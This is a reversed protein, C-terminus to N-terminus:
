KSYIFECDRLLGHYNYQFYEESETNVRIFTLGHKTDEKQSFNLFQTNASIRASYFLPAITSNKELFNVRVTVPPTTSGLILEKKTLKLVKLILSEKFVAQFLTAGKYLTMKIADNNKILQTNSKFFLFVSEEDEDLNLASRTFTTIAFDFPKSTFPTSQNLFEANTNQTACYFIFFLILIHKNM